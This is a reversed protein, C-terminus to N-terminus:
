NKLNYSLMRILNGSAFAACALTCHPGYSFQTRTTLSCSTSLSTPKWIFKNFFIYLLNDPMCVYKLYVRSTYLYIHRYRYFTHLVLSIIYKHTYLTRRCKDDGDYNYLNWIFILHIIITADDDLVVFLCIHCWVPLRYLCMYYIACVLINNLLIYSGNMDMSYYLFCGYVISYCVRLASVCTFM